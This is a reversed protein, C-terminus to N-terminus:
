AQPIDEVQVSDTTEIKALRAQVADNLEHLAEPSATTVYDLIEPACGTTEMGEMPPAETTSGEVGGAMNIMEEPHM